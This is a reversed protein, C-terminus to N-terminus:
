LLIGKLAITFIEGSIPTYANRAELLGYLSLSSSGARIIRQLNTIELRSNNTAKSSIVNPSTLEITAQCTNNEADTLTFASNDNIATPSANFLWLKFQPLTAQAASSTIMVEQIIITKTVNTAINAFELVTPSSTSDSVADGIAYQTTNAPRTFSVTSGSDISWNNIEQQITTM